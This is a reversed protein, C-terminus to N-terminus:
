DSFALFWIMENVHPIFFQFKYVCFSVTYHNGSPLPLFLLPYLLGFIYHHFIIQSQTTPVCQLIYIDHIM